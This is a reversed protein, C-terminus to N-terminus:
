GIKRKYEVSKANIGLAESRAAEGFPLGTEIGFPMAHEVAQMTHAIM